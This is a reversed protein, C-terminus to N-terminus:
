RHWSQQVLLPEDAEVRTLYIERRGWRLATAVDSFWIDAKRTWRPHMTDDVRYIGMGPILVRDGFDFPAGPTFTRLLDRSLAITGPRPPRSSATVSPTEDTEVERSTYGTVEVALFRHRDSDAPVQDVLLGNPSDDAPSAVVGAETAAM